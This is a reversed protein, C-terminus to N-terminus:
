KRNRKKSKKYNTETYRPIPNIDIKTELCTLVLKNDSLYIYKSGFGFTFVQYSIVAGKDPYYCSKSKSPIKLIEQKYNDIKSNIEIPKDFNNYFCICRKCTDKNSFSNNNNSKLVGKNWGDEIAKLRKEKCPHDSHIEDLCTPHNLNNMAIQSQQLTAGLKALIYGSFEDAELEEKRTNASDLFYLTHGNLHHGLEHAFISISSWDTNSNIEIKKLFTADYLIYRLGDKGTVACCNNINDCPVLIFNSKLGLPELLTNITKLANTNSEFSKLSIGKKINECVEISRNNDGYNCYNKSKFISDINQAFINSVIFLLNCIFIIKKM